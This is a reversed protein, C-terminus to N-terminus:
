ERERRSMTGRRFGSMAEEKEAKPGGAFDKRGGIL